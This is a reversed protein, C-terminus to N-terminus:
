IWGEKKRILQYVEEVTVQRGIGYIPEQEPFGVQDPLAHMPSLYITYCRKQNHGAWHSIGNEIAVVFSGESLIYGLEPYSINLYRYIAAELPPDSPGGVQVVPVHQVVRTALENFGAWEKSCHINSLGMNKGGSPMVCFPKDPLRVAKRHIASAYVQNNYVLNLGPAYENLYKMFSIICHQGYPLTAGMFQKITWDYKGEPQSIVRAKVGCIIPIYQQGAPSSYSRLSIDVEVDPCQQNVMKLVASVTVWDGMGHELNTEILLRRM